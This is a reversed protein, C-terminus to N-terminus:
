CATHVRLLQDRVRCSVNAIFIHAQHLLDSFQYTHWSVCRPVNSAEWKYCMRNHRADLHLTSTSNQQKNQVGIIAATNHLCNTLLCDYKSVMIGTLTFPYHPLQQSGDAQQCGSHWAGWGVKDDWQPACLLMTSCEGRGAGGPPIVALAAPALQHFQDVTTTKCPVAHCATPSLSSLLGCRWRAAATAGVGAAVAAGRGTAMSRLLLLWLLLVCCWDSITYLLLKIHQTITMNTKAMLGQWACVDADHPCPGEALHLTCLLCQVTHLCSDWALIGFATLQQNRQKHSNAETHTGAQVQVDAATV